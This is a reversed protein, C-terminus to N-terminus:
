YLTFLFPQRPSQVYLHFQLFSVSVINFYLFLIGFSMVWIQHPGIDIKQEPDITGVNANVLLICGIIAM